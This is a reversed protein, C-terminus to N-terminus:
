DCLSCGLVRANERVQTYNQNLYMLALLFPLTM